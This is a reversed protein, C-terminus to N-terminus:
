VTLKPGDIELSAPARAGGWNYTPKCFITLIDIYIYQNTTEFM